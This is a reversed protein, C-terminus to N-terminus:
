PKVRYWYRYLTEFGLRQYFALATQNNEMVQLYVGQAGQEIGWETMKHLLTQGVGQRRFDAHTFLSFLGLWGRELVVMGVAIPQEDVFISMYAAHPKIRQLIGRRAQLVHGTYGELQCHAAFWAESFDEILQCTYNPNLTARSLLSNLSVTQVATPKIQVYGLEALHIDLELQHAITCIRYQVPQNFNRYFQEAVILKETLRATNGAQMPWASNARGTVGDAFRLHWGDIIQTVAAPWANVLIAEIDTPTMTQNIMM